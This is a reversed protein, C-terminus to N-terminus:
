RLTPTDTQREEARLREVVMMRVAAARSLGHERAFRDLRAVDGSPMSTQVLVTHNCGRIPQEDSPISM